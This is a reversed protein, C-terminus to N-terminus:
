ANISMGFYPEQLAAPLWLRQDPVETGTGPDFSDNHLIRCHQLSTNVLGRDTTALRNNIRVLRLPL